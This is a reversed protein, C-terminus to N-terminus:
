FAFVTDSKFVDNSLLIFMGERSYSPGFLALGCAHPHPALPLFAPRGEGRAQEPLLNDKAKTFSKKRSFREERYREPVSQKYLAPM